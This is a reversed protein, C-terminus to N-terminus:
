GLNIVLKIAENVYKRLFKNRSWFEDTTKRVDIEKLWPIYGFRLLVNQKRRVILHTFSLTLSYCGFNIIRLKPHKSIKM